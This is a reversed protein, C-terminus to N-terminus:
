SAVVRKNIATIREVAEQAVFANSRGAFMVIPRRFMSLAALM